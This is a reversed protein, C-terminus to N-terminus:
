RKPSQPLASMTVWASLSLTEQYIICLLQSRGHWLHINAFSFFSFLTQNKSFSEDKLRFFSNTYPLNPSGMHKTSYVPLVYVLELGRNGACFYKEDGWGSLLVQVLTLQYAISKSRLQYAISKSRLQHTM